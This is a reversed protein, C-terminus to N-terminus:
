LPGPMSPSIGAAQSALVSGAATLAVGLAMMARLGWREQWRGVLFMFVGVAALMFFIILGTAAAGVGFMEQWFAAMAGPFGFTLAGSFFVALCSGILALLPQNNEPM